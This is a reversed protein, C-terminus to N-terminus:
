LDIEADTTSRTDARRALALLTHDSSFFWSNGSFRPHVRDRGEAQPYIGLSSSHAPYMPSAFLQACDYDFM